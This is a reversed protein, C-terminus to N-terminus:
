GQTLTKKLVERKANNGVYEAFLFALHTAVVSTEQTLCFDEFDSFDWGAMQTLVPKQSTKKPALSRLPTSKQTFYEDPHGVFNNGVRLNDIVSGQPRYVPKYVPKPVPKRVPKLEDWKITIVAALLKQVHGYDLTERNTHQEYYGVGLNVCEPILHAYEKVDTYVGKVSAQMDLNHKALEISLAAAFEPSACQLGGQTIIIESDGPRDFAIARSFNDRLWIEQSAALQKAGLGGKEEGVHFVYTGPVKAEIMKLMIYIGAGDDAGLCGSTKDDVGILQFSADFNLAQKSTAHSELMSHVTDIHCSFLTDSKEDTVVVYNDNLVRRTGAFKQLYGALWQRFQQEGPSNHCRKTGLIKALLPDITSAVAETAEPLATTPLSM